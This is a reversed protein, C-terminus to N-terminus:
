VVVEWDEALIDTQSPLWPTCDINNETDGFHNTSGKPCAMMLYPRFGVITGEPLNLAEQTNKNISIGDPYGKQLVVYMGKGNWGRRAVKNGKKMTETALGFTMGEMNRYTSEFLEKPEWSFTGDERTIKYGEDCPKEDAPITWGRFNNYEGRTMPEAEIMKVGLYKQM